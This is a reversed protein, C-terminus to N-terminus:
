RNRQNQYAAPNETIYQYELTIKGAIKSQDYLQVQKELRKLTLAPTLSFFGFGILPEESDSSHNRVEIILTDRQVQSRSIIIEDNWTPQLNGETAPTNHQESDGLRAYVVPKMDSFIGSLDRILEASKPWISVKGLTDPALVEEHNTCEADLEFQISVNLQGIVRTKGYLACEQDLKPGGKRVKTLAFAGEAIIQDDEIMNSNWIQVHVLDEEFKRTFEFSEKWQPFQGGGDCVTTQKVQHGMKLKVYPSQKGIWTVQEQLTADRVEVTLKGRWITKDIRNQNTDVSSGCGM